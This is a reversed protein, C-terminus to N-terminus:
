VSRTTSVGGGPVGPEIGWTDNGIERLLSEQREEGGDM